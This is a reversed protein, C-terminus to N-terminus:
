TNMSKDRVFHQSLFDPLSVAIGVLEFLHCLIVRRSARLKMAFLM